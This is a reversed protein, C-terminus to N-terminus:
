LARVLELIPVACGCYERVLWVFRLRTTGIQEGKTRGRLFSLNVVSDRKWQGATEGERLGNDRFRTDADRIARCLHGLLALGFAIGSGGVVILVSGYTTWRVRVASGYAGDVRVRLIPPIYRGTRPDHIRARLLHNWLDLTLGQRARIIFELFQTLDKGDKAPTAVRAGSKVGEASSQGCEFSSVVTFPHGTFRSLVPFALIAYQGAAYSVRRKPRVTLRITRGPLLEASACGPPIIATLNTPDFLYQPPTPPFTFRPTSDALLPPVAHDDVERFGKTRHPPYLISVTADGRPFSSQSPASDLEPHPLQRQEEPLYIPFVRRQSIIPVKEELPNGNIWVTKLLRWTRELAWLGLSAWCWPGLPPYHLSSFILTLLVLVIHVVYFLEFDSRRFFPFSLMVLLTM